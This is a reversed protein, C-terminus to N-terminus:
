QSAEFVLGHRRPAATPRYWGAGSNLDVEELLIARASIVAASKASSMASRM